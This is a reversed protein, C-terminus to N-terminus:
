SCWRQISHITVCKGENDDGDEGSPKGMKGIEKEYEIVDEDKKFLLSIVIAIVLM